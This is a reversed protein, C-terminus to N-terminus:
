VRLLLSPNFVLPPEPAPLPENTSAVALWQKWYRCAKVFLVTAEEFTKYDLDGEFVRHLVFNQKTKDIGITALGTEAGLYNAEMLRTYVDERDLSAGLDAIMYLLNDHQEFSIEDQDFLVTCVGQDSFQLRIGLTTGLEEVLNKADM